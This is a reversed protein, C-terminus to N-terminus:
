TCAHTGATPNSSPEPHAALRVECHVSRTGVRQKLAELSALGCAYPNGNSNNCMQGKEPADVGYLRIKDKGPSPLAVFMIGQM